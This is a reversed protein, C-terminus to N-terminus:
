FDIGEVEDDLNAVVETFNKYVKRSDYNIYMFCYKERVCNRYIENFKKVGLNGSM